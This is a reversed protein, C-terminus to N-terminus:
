KKHLYRILKLVFGAPIFKVLCVFIRNMLGQIALRKGKNMAHYGYLAADHSSSFKLLKMIKSKKMGATNQFGSVTPGPCLCTVTVGSGELETAIAQSFSVVFSKTAYYVAMFPGPQFAATSAVNLIKGSGRKVMGSLFLRTLHVLVIINVNMMSNHVDWDTEQFNGVSGFGVNNVLVDIQTQELENFLEEASTPKALDKQIVRVSVKSGKELETKLKELENIRRAVLVLDYGDGAFLRAFELGIGGSAGTILTTKRNM